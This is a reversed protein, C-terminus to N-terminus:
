IKLKSVFHFMNGTYILQIHFGIAIMFGRKRGFGDKPPFSYQTCIIGEPVPKACCQWVHLLEALGAVSVCNGETNGQIFIPSLSGKLISVVLIFDFQIM